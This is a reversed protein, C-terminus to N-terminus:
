CAAGPFGRLIRVPGTEPDRAHELTVKGGTDRAVFLGGQAGILVSSRCSRADQVSRRHRPRRRACHRVQRGSRATMFWGDWTQALLGSGLRTMHLVRRTDPGDAPAFTVKGGEARVTFWRKEGHILMLGGPLYGLGDVLGATDGGFLTGTIGRSEERLLFWANQTEILVGGAFNRMSRLYGAGSDALNSSRSRAAQPAHWSGDVTPGPCCGAAWSIMWRMPRGEYGAPAVTVKGNKRAGPVIGEGAGVLVGAGPFDHLLHVSGTGADGPAPALTGGAELALFLGKGTGILAKGGPLGHVALM